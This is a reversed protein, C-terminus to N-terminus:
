LLQSTWNSWHMLILPWDISLVLRYNLLCHLLFFFFFWAVDSVLCTVKRGADSSRNEWESTGPFDWHLQSKWCIHTIMYVIITFKASGQVCGEIERFHLAPCRPPRSRPEPREFSLTWPGSLHKQFFGENWNLNLKQKLTGWFLVASLWGQWKWVKHNRSPIQAFNYLKRM